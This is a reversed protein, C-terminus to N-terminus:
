TLQNYERLFASSWKEYVRQCEQCYPSMCYADEESGGSFLRANPFQEEHGWWAYVCFLFNSPVPYRSLMKERHLWCHVEGDVEYTSPVRQCKPCRQGDRLEDCVVEPGSCKHCRVVYSM